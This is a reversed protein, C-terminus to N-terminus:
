TFRYQRAGTASSLASRARELACTPLEAGDAPLPAHANVSM